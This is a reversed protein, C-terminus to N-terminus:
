ETALGKRMTATKAVERQIRKPTLASKLMAFVREFASPVQTAYQAFRREQEAEKLLEEHRTRGYMLDVYTFM